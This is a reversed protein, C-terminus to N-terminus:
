SSWPSTDSCNMLSASACILVTTPSRSPLRSRSGRASRALRALGAGVEDEEGLERDGAVRRLVQEEPGAEDARGLSRELSIARAARPM